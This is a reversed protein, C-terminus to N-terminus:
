AEYGYTEVDLDAICIQADEGTIIQISSDDQSTVRLMQVTGDGIVGDYNNIPM